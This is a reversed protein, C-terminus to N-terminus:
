RRRALALDWVRDNRDKPPLLRDVEAEIDVHLPTIMDSMRRAAAPDDYALRIVRQPVSPEVGMDPDLGYGSIIRRVDDQNNQFDMAQKRAEAAYAEIAANIIVSYTGTLGMMVGFGAGSRIGAITNAIRQFDISCM